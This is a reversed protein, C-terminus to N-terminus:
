SPIDVTITVPSDGFPMRMAENHLEPPVPIEVFAACESQYTMARLTVYPLHRDNTGSIVGSIIAKFQFTM